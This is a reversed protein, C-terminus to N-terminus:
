FNKWLISVMLCTLGGVGAVQKTRLSVLTASIATKVTLLELMSLANSCENGALNWGLSTALWLGRDQGPPREAWPNRQVIRLPSWAFVCTLGIVYFIPWYKWQCAEYPPETLIWAAIKKKRELQAGILVAMNTQQKGTFLLFRPAWSLPYVETMCALKTSSMIYVFHWVCFLPVSPQTKLVKLHWSKVNQVM